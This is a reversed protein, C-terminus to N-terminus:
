AAPWVVTIRGVAGPIPLSGAEEEVAERQRSSLPEFPTVTVKAQQRRYLGRIEGDVLVVGSPFGATSPPARDVGKERTWAWVRRDPDPAILERDTQLYPDMGLPLLRTTRVPAAADLADADARLIWRDRGDVDVAVLEPALAEVTATADGATVGAWRRFGPVDGPGLFHFFRRALALRAADRDGELAPAGLVSTTRADWRIPLGAARCVMRVHYPHGLEPLAAFVERQTAQARGDMFSRAAATLRDLRASADPDRPWTGLAWVWRDAAPVVFVKEGRHWLQILSEDRWDDPGVGEVRAHLAMLAARPTSDQLGASAAEALSGPRLRHDLHSARLRFAVVDDRTVKIM